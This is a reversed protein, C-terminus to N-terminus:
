AETDAEFHWTRLLKMMTTVYYEQDAEPGPYTLKGCINVIKILGFNIWVLRLYTLTLHKSLMSHCVIGYMLCAVVSVTNDSIM